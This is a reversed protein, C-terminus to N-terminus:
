ARGNPDPPQDLQLRIAYAAAATRSTVNLKGLLNAVHGSATRSSISLADGIERDSCGEALLALVELERATFQVGVEQPRLSRAQIPSEPEALTESLLEDFSLAAGAEWAQEFADNGLETRLQEIVTDYRPSEWRDVSSGIQQTLTGAAGLLRIARIANDRSAEVIAM